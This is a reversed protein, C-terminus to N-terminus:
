RPKPTIEGGIFAEMWEPKLKGGLVELPPFGDFKGHCEACRLLHAQREAFEAAVQRNLAARDTAGFAQLAQREAATFDFQAAKSEDSPREALCGRKWQDAPLDALSK